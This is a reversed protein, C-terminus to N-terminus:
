LRRNQVNCAKSHTEVCPPPLAYEREYQWSDERAIREDDSAVASRRAMRAHVTHLLRSSTRRGLLNILGTLLPKLADGVQREWDM